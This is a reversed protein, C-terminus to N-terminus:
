FPAQEVGRFQNLWMSQDKHTKTKLEQGKELTPLVPDVVLTRNLYPMKLANEM